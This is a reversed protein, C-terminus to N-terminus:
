SMAAWIYLGPSHREYRAGASAVVDASPALIRVLGAGPGGRLEVIQYDAADEHGTLIPIEDM